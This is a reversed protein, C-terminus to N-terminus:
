ELNNIGQKSMSQHSLSNPCWYAYYEINILKIPINLRQCFDSHKHHAHHQVVVKIGAGRECYRTQLYEEPWSQWRVPVCSHYWHCGECPIHATLHGAWVEHMRSNEPLGLLFFEKHNQSTKGVYVLERFAM